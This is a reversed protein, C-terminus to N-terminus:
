SGDLPTTVKWLLAEFEDETMMVDDIANDTTSIPAPDDTNVINGAEDIAETQTDTNM